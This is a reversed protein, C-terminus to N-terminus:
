YDFPNSTREANGSEEHAPPTFSIESEQMGYEFPNKNKCCGAGEGPLADCIMGVPCLLGDTPPNTCIKPSGDPCKEGGESDSGSCDGNEANCEPLVLRRGGGMALAMSSNALCRNMDANPEKGEPCLHKCLQEDRDFYPTSVPCIECVRSTKNWYAEGVGTSGPCCVKPNILKHRDTSANSPLYPYPTFFREISCCEIYGMRPGNYGWVVERCRDEAENCLWNYTESSCNNALTADPRCFSTNDHPAKWCWWPDYVTFRDTAAAVEALAALTVAM